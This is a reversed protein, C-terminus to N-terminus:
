FIPYVLNFNFQPTGGTPMDTATVNHIGAASGSANFQVFNNGGVVVPAIDQYGALTIGTWQGSGFSYTGAAATFPLGTIKLIGSSTTYAFGDLTLNCRVLIERGLKSWYGAQKVYHTVLDGVTAFTLVPTWLGYTPKFRIAPALKM